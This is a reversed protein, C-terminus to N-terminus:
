NLLINIKNNSESTKNNLIYNPTIYGQNINNDITKSKTKNINNTMKPIPKMKFNATSTKPRESQYNINHNNNLYDNAYIMNNNGYNVKNNDNLINNYGSATNIRRKNSESTAPKKRM